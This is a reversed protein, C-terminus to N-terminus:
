RRSTHHCDAPGSPTEFFATLKEESEWVDQVLKGKPQAAPQPAPAQGLLAAPVFMVLALCWASRGRSQFM